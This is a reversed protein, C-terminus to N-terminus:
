FEVPLIYHVPVKKGRQMGPTWDKMNMVISSGGKGSLDNDQEIIKVNTVKGNADITFGIKAKGKINKQQALKEEMGTVYQGLAYFGGPYHPLDEVIYFEEGQKESTKPPPPPPPAVKEVKPPPPPPPLEGKIFKDADIVIVGEKLKFTFKNNDLAKGSATVVGNMTEYGVYSIVLYTSLAGTNNDIKPNPDTLTFSGDKDVVTGIPTGKILVAAGPLPAGNEERVVKGHIIFEKETKQM